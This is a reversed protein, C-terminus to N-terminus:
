FHGYTEYIKVEELKTGMMMMGIDTVSVNQNQCMGMIEGRYLVMIRDSYKLLTDLDETIILVACGKAKLDLIMNFVAEAAAVDLGRSPYAAVLVKPDAEIERALLVKQLNGGSMLRVPASIDTVSVDYKKVIEKARQRVNKYKILAFRSSKKTRYDKLIINDSLSMNAALGTGLRDEPVFSIGQLFCEKANLNTIDKGNFIIKGGSPKQLGAILEALEKQGNGSVGAVGVIEGPKIDFSVNKVTQLNKQNHASVNELVLLPEGEVVKHEIKEEVEPTGMMLESLNRYNIDEENITAITKGRRLVTVRDAIECVEALKHTIIIVSCGNRAMQKLNEFLKASEQPTLVATPEDLVLIKAKRYLVKLIEVTQQQGVALQWIKASPNIDMNYEAACKKIAEEARKKDYIIPQDDDGMIINEAVSFAEILKFHQHIMGIGRKIADKPSSFSVKEGEIYIEGSTPKYLGSLINMLTSKGAGNEGLIAHIEGKRVDFNINDNAVIGPFVKTINKMQIVTSESM